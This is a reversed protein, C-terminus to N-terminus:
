KVMSAAYEVLWVKPAIWIQLWTLNSSIIIVGVIYSTAILAIAGSPAAVATDYASSTIEGRGSFRTWREGKEYDADASRKKEKGANIVYKTLTATIIMLLLGMVFWIASKVGYWVLLQMIYEPLQAEMFGIGTDVGALAKEILSTVAGELKNAVEKDTM